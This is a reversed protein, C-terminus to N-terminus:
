HRRRRAVLVGGGVLVALLGVGVASAVLTTFGSDDGDDSSSAATDSDSSESGSTESESDGKAVESAAEEPSTTPESGDGFRFGITSGPEPDLDFVGKDAFEWAGDDSATFFGWFTEADPPSACSTKPAGDITCLMKADSQVKEVEFGASELAEGADEPDGEACKTTTSDGQQVVVTVGESESCGAAQAPSAVALGGTAILATLGLRAITTRM